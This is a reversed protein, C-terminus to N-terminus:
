KNQPEQSPSTWWDMFEEPYSSKLCEALARFEERGDRVHNWIIELATRGTKDPVDAKAGGNLLTIVTDLHGLHAARHLPTRGHTDQMNVDAGKEILLNVMDANGYEAAWYLPTCGCEDKADVPVGRDLIASVIDIYGNGNALSLIATGQNDPAEVDAGKRLLLRAIRPHHSWLAWYLPTQGLGSDACANIDAGNDLLAIVTGIDGSLVARHLLAYGDADMRNIDPGPDALATVSDVHGSMVSQHPPMDGTTETEDATVGADVGVIADTKRAERSIIGVMWPGIARITEWTKRVVTIRESVSESGSGAM